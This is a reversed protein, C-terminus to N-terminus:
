QPHQLMCKLKQQVVAYTMAKYSFANLSFFLQLISPQASQGGVFLRNKAHCGQPRFSPWQKAVHSTELWELSVKSM